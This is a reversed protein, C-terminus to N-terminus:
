TTVGESGLMFANEKDGGKKKWRLDLIRFWVVVMLVHMKRYM